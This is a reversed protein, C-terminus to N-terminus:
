RSRRMARRYRVRPAQLRPEDALELLLGLDEDRAADFASGAAPDALGPHVVWETLGATLPASGSRLDRLEPPLAPEEGRLRGILRDPTRVGRERLRRRDSEGISRVRADLRAALESVAELLPATTHCHHHGDIHAPPRGFLRSFLDAQRRPEGAADESGSEALELHLGIEVGSALLPTPDCWPRMVMASVADVAGARAARLIGECYRPSYGYDDATILLAYDIAGGYGRSRSRTAFRPAQPKSV